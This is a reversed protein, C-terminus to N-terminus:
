ALSTEYPAIRVIMETLTTAKGTYNLVLVQGVLAKFIFTQTELTAAGNTLLSVSSLSTVTSGTTLPTAGTFGTGGADITLIYQGSRGFVLTNSTVVSIDLGGTKSLSAFPTALACSTTTGKMSYASIVGASDLQPTELEVDYEVYLEGLSAASAGQSAIFYNGVDYTKIDLNSALTGSRIYRKTGFKRLDSGQSTYCSEQWVSSRVANAYSMLQVKSSPPDDAADFDVAHMISGSSATSSQSEYEFRLSRFLYSEYNLAITSLWPFTSAIGPNISFQSVEFSTGTSIIDSIYERHTVRISGDIARSRNIKPAQMRMISSSAVPVSTTIKRVVSSQNQQNNITRLNSKKKRNRKKKSIPKEMPDKRAKFPSYMRTLGRYM